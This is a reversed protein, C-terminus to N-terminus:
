QTRDVVRFLSCHVVVQESSVCPWFSRCICWLLNIRHIGFCCCRVLSSENSSHVFGNIWVHIRKYYKAHTSYIVTFQYWIALVSVFVQSVSSTSHSTQTSNFHRPCSRCSRIFPRDQLACTTSISPDHRLSYYSVGLVRRRWQWSKPDWPQGKLFGNRSWDRHADRAAEAKWTALCDPGPQCCATWRKHNLDDPM